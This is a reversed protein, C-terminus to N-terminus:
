PLVSFSMYDLSVLLFSQQCVDGKADNLSGLRWKTSLPLDIHRLLRSERSGKGVRMQM